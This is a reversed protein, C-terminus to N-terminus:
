GETKSKLAKEVMFLVNEEKPPKQLFGFIGEKFCREQTTSQIDATLILVPVDFDEQKLQKFVDLGDIDPMLLDLLLCDPKEKKCKELAQTGNEAVSIEYDTKKFLNVLTQRILWSDDVILIRAM